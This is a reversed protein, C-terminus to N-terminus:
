ASTRAAVKMRKRSALVLLLAAVECLAAVWGLDGPSAHALTFAGLAAGMSFGIYLFSANLSLAVSAVRVGALHILNAQQAPYFAWSSIGWVIVTVLVPLVAVSRGLMASIASLSAFAATLLLLAPMLVSVAGLKDTARGGVYVGAAAAVGWAFLVLSIQSGQITTASTLFVALYTYATYLGTAWITTVILGALVNPEKIVALRERLTAAHLGKGFAKPLGIKLGLMAIAALCAVGAFTSRWGATEGAVAGLPVGLAIAATLGGAVIALARGRQEPRVIAGALANAGPVYLGASFALLVRALMLTEFDSAVCAIINALAFFGLSGILLRRRDLRGTLATLLPSSLAYALAFTWVLQGARPVSVTVDAAIQPLLPSIMFTETGIAFTGLALWLLPKLTSLSPHESTNMAPRPM